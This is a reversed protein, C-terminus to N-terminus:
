VIKVASGQLSSDLEARCESLREAGHSGALREKCDNRRECRGCMRFCLERRGM